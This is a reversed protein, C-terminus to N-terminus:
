SLLQLDTAQRQASLYLVHLLQEMPMPLDFTQIDSANIGTTSGVTPLCLSLNAPFFFYAPSLFPSYSFIPTFGPLCEEFGKSSVNEVQVKFLGPIQLM